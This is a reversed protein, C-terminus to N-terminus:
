ANLLDIELTKGYLDANFDILHAEVERKTEGFTANPGIHVASALARGDDLIARAAYVGNDPIQTDIQSLNATPFGLNARSRARSSRAAFDIRGLWGIRPM